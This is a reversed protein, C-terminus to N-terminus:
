AASAFAARLMALTEADFEPMDEVIGIHKVVGGHGGKVKNWHRAADGEDIRGALSKALAM